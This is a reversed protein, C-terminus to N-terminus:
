VGHGGGHHLGLRDAIETAEEDSLAGVAPLYVAEEEELPLLVIAKLGHLIGPLADPRDVASELEEVMETIKGHAQIMTGAVGGRARLVREAAPYLVVEEARAHPLLQDRLLAVAESVRRAREEPILEAVEDALDGLSEIGPRLGGHEKSVTSAIWRGVSQSEPWGGLGPDFDHDGEGPLPTVTHLAVLGAEGASVGRVTGGPVTVVDGAKVPHVEDGVRVLGDGDAISMVMTVSPAHPPIEQGPHFATLIVKMDDTEVLVRRGFGESSFSALERAPGAVREVKSSQTTM